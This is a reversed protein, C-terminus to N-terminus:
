MQSFKWVFGHASKKNGKCCASILKYGVGTEKQAERASEYKAIFNGEKDYQEVPKRTKLSNIAGNKKGIISMAEKLSVLRGDIERVAHQVNEKATVWELNSMNNNKKNLDIHNVQEKNYPNEIFHEAVLRHILKKTGNLAIREYGGNDFPKLIKDDKKVLGTNSIQYDEFNKITKWEM